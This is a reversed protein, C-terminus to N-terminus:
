LDTEVPQRLTYGGSRLGTAVRSVTAGNAPLDLRVSGRRTDLWNLIASSGTGPATGQWCLWGAEKLTETLTAPASVIHTRIRAIHGLLENGEELAALAEEGSEEEAILGVSHGAAVAARILGARNPLSGPTFLLLVRVGAPVLDGLTGEYRSADIALYVTVASKDPKGPAPTPEATPAPTATPEPAPTALPERGQTINNYRYLMSERASSLFLSDSLVNPSSTIRILTGRDTTPLFSYQLGFYSCVAAAPVYPIGNRTVARFNLQEGQPDEAVGMTVRFTLHTNISYLSLVTGQEQKLGYYVGLDVGSAEKDFLTYPVYITGNVAVPQVGGPLDCFKDNAALLYVTEGSAASARAELAPLAGALLLALACLLAMTRKKM